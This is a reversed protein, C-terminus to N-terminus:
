PDDLQRLGIRFTTGIGPASTVDIYGRSQRVIGYVTSLGLGTGKDNPKTTFFPEFIRAVIEPPMGSGTDTVTLVMYRGAPVTEGRILLDGRRTEESTEIILHGGNPMADRANVSLNVLIQQIHGADAWVPGLNADLRTELMVRQGLLQRLIGESTAIAANLDLRTPEITQERSFAFLQQTLRQGSLAAKRIEAIDAARRDGSASEALLLESFGVIGTLVNNFDHAISGALQGLSELKQAQQLQQELHKRFTVDITIGVMNIPVRTDSRIIRGKSTLWRVSGDPWVVRFEPRYPEDHQISQSIAAEVMELDDPHVCALVEEITGEFEGPRGLMVGTTNSWRVRRTLLDFEWIGAEAADIAFQALDRFERHRSDLVRQDTVDRFTAVIAGIAPDDLRSRCIGHLVRWSGNAHRARTEGEVGGAATRADTMLTSMSLHDDPHVLDLMARGLFDGAPYGLIRLTAHNAYTIVGDVNVLILIEDSHEFLARFTGDHVVLSSPLRAGPIDPTREPM